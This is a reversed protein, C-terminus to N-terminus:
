PSTLSIVLLRYSLGYNSSHWRTDTYNPINLNFVPKPTRKTDGGM